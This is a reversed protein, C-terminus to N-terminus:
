FWAEVITPDDEPHRGQGYLGPPLWSRAEMLSDCVATPETAVGVQNGPLVYQARLVFKGPYDSPNDYIVWITMLAGDVTTMPAEALEEGTLQVDEVPEVPRGRVTDHGNM